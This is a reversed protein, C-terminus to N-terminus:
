QETIPEPTPTIVIQDYLAKINKAIEDPIQYELYGPYGHNMSITLTWATKCDNSLLLYNSDDGIVLVYIGESLMTNIDTSVKEARKSEDPEDVPIWNEFDFTKLQEKTIPFTGPYQKYPGILIEDAQDVIPPIEKLFDKATDVYNLAPTVTPVPTAPTKLTPSDPASAIPFPFGQEPLNLDKHIGEMVDRWIDEPYHQNTSMIPRVSSKSESQTMEEASLEDYGSWIGAAYYPTYGIFSLDKDDTTSGTKGAVPIDLDKFAATKGTGFPSYVVGCMIDTLSNATEKKLAQQSTTEKQLLEKGTNDYVKTYFIPLNYVGDNAIASYAATQELLNVGMTLGGLVMSPNKDTYTQGNINEGAVISTFHFEQLYDFCNDIGSEVAVKVAVVNASQAVAQRVTMEGKYTNGWWNQPQFGDITFPEDVVVSDANILGMDIAPAYGALIQFTSGPQRLIDTARNVETYDKDRSGSLAKVQGTHYDMIVMAAQLDPGLEQPYYTDDTIVKDMIGQIDQNMTSFIRTHRNFIIDQSEAEGIRLQTQMDIDVQKVVSQLFYNLKDEQSNSCRVIENGQDDFIELGQYDDMWVESATPSSDTTTATSTDSSVSPPAESQETQPNIAPLDSNSAPQSNSDSIQSCGSLVVCVLISLPIIFKFLKM